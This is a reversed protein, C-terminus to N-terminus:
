PLAVGVNDANIVLAGNRSDEPDTPNMFIHTAIGGTGLINMIINTNPDYTHAGDSLIDDPKNTALAFDTQM